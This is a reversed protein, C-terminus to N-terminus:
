CRVGTERGVDMSAHWDTLTRRRWRRLTSFWPRQQEVPDRHATQAKPSCDIGDLADAKTAM